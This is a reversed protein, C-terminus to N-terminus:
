KTPQIGQNPSTNWNRKNSRVQDKLIELIEGKVKYPLYNESSLRTPYKIYVTCETLENVSEPIDVGPTFVWKVWQGPLLPYVERVEGFADSLDREQRNIYYDEAWDAFELRVGYVTIPFPNHNDVRLYPSRHISQYGDFAISKTLSSTLIQAQRHNYIWVVGAWVAASIVGAVIGIVIGEAIRGVLVNPM